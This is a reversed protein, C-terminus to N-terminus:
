PLPTPRVAMGAPWSVPVTGFAAIEPDYLPIVVNVAVDKTPLPADSVARFALWNVLPVTGSARIDPAYVSMVDILMDPSNLDPDFM